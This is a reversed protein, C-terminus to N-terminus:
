SAGAAAKQRSMVLKFVMLGVQWPNPLSKQWSDLGHALNQKQEEVLGLTRRAQTQIRSLEKLWLAKQTIFRQTFKELQHRVWVLGVIALVEGAILCWFLPSM